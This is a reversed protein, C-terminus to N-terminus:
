AKKFGNFQDSCLAKTFIDAVEDKTSIYLLDIEKSIIKECIFHYHVEIHKTRAHFTPNSALMISSISDSKIPVKYDVKEGLDKILHTLWISECTALMAARYEAETSSLAVTPQKKSAWSVSGSGLNFCFGSISRRTSLDGAWDAYCYGSLKIPIGQNYFVGEDITGKLYKLIRKVADLHPERPSQMFQSVIGLSYALDPCTITLYVLSGVIERYLQLDDIHAGEQSLKHNVELPTAVSKADLFGFKALLDLAFKKQVILIGEYTRLVEIGLFFQLKGLDIMDFQQFLSKKFSDVDDSNSGM